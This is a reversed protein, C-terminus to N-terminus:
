RDDSQEAPTEQARESPSVGPDQMRTGTARLSAESDILFQGSAVIRQGAELGGKIETRGGSEIGIEVDVPRFADEDDALIVVAREGTRIVAETPVTIVEAAGAEIVVDVFMGPALAYDPNALTLRAKITRTVPDVEPLIAQVTGSFRAGGLADARAEVAAGPTVQAAQTEPVAAEVWVTALGNIRFLTAGPIVTMGERAVLEVVVGPIPARLTIRPDLEGSEEVLRIQPESMGAQRMRQRAGDLLPALGDASLRALALYEEQAAVWDPVYLDILAQGPAVRDLTATVHLREVFGTARAQVIVQDRENFAVIGAIEIRPSITERAVEVTRIGLNQRVRSSVSVTGADDDADAYVPVLRMDMFPSKGPRDFRRGPVMPDHWYLVRKGTVPDIDGARLAAGGTETAPRMPGTGASEIGHSVGLSYLGYGGAALVAAIFVGAGIRIM